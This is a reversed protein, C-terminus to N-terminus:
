HFFFSSGGCGSGRGFGGESCRWGVIGGLGGGARVGSNFSGGAALYHWVSKVLSVVQLPSKTIMSALKSVVFALDPRTRATIWVLEGVVKQADKVNAATKEEPNDVVEPEKALPIRRASWSSMEGGLNRKLLDKIYNAQTMLWTGDEKRWLETGLFRVENTIGICEPESTEWKQRVALIMAKTAESTGLVLLDDVYVLLLGVFEEAQTTEFPGPQRLMMRWMNPETIMQQLTLVGGQCDIEMNSMEVDRYDSWLRPSERYGYLAM